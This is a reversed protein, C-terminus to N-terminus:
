LGWLQYSQWPALDAQFRQAQGTGFLTVLPSLQFQFISTGTLETGRFQSNAPLYWNDTNDHKRWVLTTTNRTRDSLLASGELGGGYSAYYPVDNVWIAGGTTFPKLTVDEFDGTFVQFRPGSTLDLLSVNAASINFQRNIYGTFQTELASKDQRGFDYSHRI